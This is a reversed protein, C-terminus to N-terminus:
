SMLGFDDEVNRDVGCAILTQIMREDQNKRALHLANRGMAGISNVDIGGKILLQVIRHQGRSVAIHLCTDDNLNRYNWINIPALPDESDINLEGRFAQKLELIEEESLNM